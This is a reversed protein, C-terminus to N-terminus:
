TSPAPTTPAVSTNITTQSSASTPSPQPTTPATTTAAPTSTTTTSAQTPPAQTTDSSSDDSKCKKFDIGCAVMSIVLALVCLVLFIAAILKLNKLQMKRRLSTSNTHFGEAETALQETRDVLYDIKEGRELISDINELMIKKVGEIQVKLRGIKDGEPNDNFYRMTSALTPAFKKCFQPTLESKNPYKKDSGAFADKFKSKIEELFGFVTRATYDQDTMCMYLIENEVLFHYLKSEYEYSVKNDHRPIKELFSAIVTRAQQSVREEVLVVKQLAILALQIPM